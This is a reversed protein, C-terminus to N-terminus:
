GELFEIVFKYKNGYENIEDDLYIIAGFDSLLQTAIYLGMGRGENKNSIFPEFIRSSIAGDVGKGNDYMILKKSDSDLEITITPNNIDFYDLWYLSNFIINETVIKINSKIGRIQFDRGTIRCIFDHGNHHFIPNDIYLSEIYKKVSFNEYKRQRARSNIDLISAYRSLFYCNNVILDLKDNIKNDCLKRISKTLTEIQRTLRKIEHALSQSIIASGLIPNLEDLYKYKENILNERKSYYSKIDYNSKKVANIVDILGHLQANSEILEELRNINNDSEIQPDYNKIFNIGSIEIKEGHDLNKLVKQKPYSINDNFRKEMNAIVRYVINKMISIFNSGFSDLQIGQRNTMEKIKDLNDIGDIKVYGTTTHTKYIISTVRSNYGNMNLWDNDDDGYPLIRFNNRYLKVGIFSELDKKIETTNKSSSFDYAFIEGNFNGPLYIKDIDYLNLKDVGCQYTSISEKLKKYNNLNIEAYECGYREYFKDYDIASDLSFDLSEMKDILRDVEAKIYHKNRNQQIYLIKQDSKFEFKSYSFATRRLWEEDLNDNYFFPNNDIKVKVLFSSERDIYPNFLQNIDDKLTENVDDDWHEINKLGFIEIKTGHSENNFKFNDNYEEQKIFINVDDISVNENNFEEWNIDFSYYKNINEDILSKIDETGFMKYLDISDCENQFFDIDLKTAVRIYKGLKNLSLRGIGKNGQAIRKYKPSIKQYNNKFSSAIKLFANEIIYKNMGNGNDEIIIKGKGIENEFSTDITIKCITADADSSNKILEMLAVKNSDILAEGLQSILRADVRLSMVSENM